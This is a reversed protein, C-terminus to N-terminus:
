RGGIFNKKPIFIETDSYTKIEVGDSSWNIEVDKLDEDDVNYPKPFNVAHGYSPEIEKAVWIHYRTNFTQQKKVISICYPDFSEYNINEPQCETYINDSTWVFGILHTFVAIAAVIIISLQILNTGFFLINLKSM